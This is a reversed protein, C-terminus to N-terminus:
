TTCVMDAIHHRSGPPNVVLPDSPYLPPPPRAIQTMDHPIQTLDRPIQTMDRPIQTMDRPLQTVDRPLQTM